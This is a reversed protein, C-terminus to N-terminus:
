RWTGAQALIVSSVSSPLSQIAKENQTSPPSPHEQIKTLIGVHAPSYIRRKKEPIEWPLLAFDFQEDAEIVFISDVPAAEYLTLMTELMESQRSAFFEYPPSIFVLWPAQSQFNERTKAWYFADTCVLQCLNKLNLSEINTRINKATPLHQEILTAFVAGRSIAEIALAGTGSFLDIAHKGKVSPGILNFVAERVRNKMPRVRNDGSYALFSGRLRGGIIRLGIPEKEFSQSGVNRKKM